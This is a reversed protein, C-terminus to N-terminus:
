SWLNFLINHTYIALTYLYGVLYMAQTFKLKESIGASSGHFKWPYFTAQKITWSLIVLLIPETILLPTFSYKKAFVKPLRKM